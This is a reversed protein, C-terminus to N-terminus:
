EKLYRKILEEDSIQDKKGGASPISKNGLQIGKETMQPTIGQAQGRAANAADLTAVASDYVAKFVKIEEESLDEGTYPNKGTALAGAAVDKKTSTPYKNFQEQWTKATPKRTEAVSERSRAGIGALIQSNIWVGETLNRKLSRDAAQSPGGLLDLLKATEDIKTPDGSKINEVHAKWVDNGIQALEADSFQQRLKAREANLKDDNLTRKNSLELSSLDVANQKEQNGLNAGTNSLGQAQLLLPNMEAAQANRLQGAQLDQANGQLLQQKFQDALGLNAMAEINARPNWAGYISGLEDMTPMAPNNM